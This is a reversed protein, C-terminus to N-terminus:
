PLKLRRKNIILNNGHNSDLLQYCIQEEDYDNSFSYIELTKPESDESNSNQIVIIIKRLDQKDVSEFALKMWEIMIVIFLVLM